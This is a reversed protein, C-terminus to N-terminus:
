GNEATSSWERFHMDTAGDTPFLCAVRVEQLTVDRPMGLTALTTFLSLSTDGRQFHMPVVPAQTEAPPPGEILAAADPLALLRHLCGTLESSAARCELRGTLTM